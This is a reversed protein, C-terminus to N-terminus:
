LNSRRERTCHARALMERFNFFYCKILRNELGGLVANSELSVQLERMIQIWSQIQKWGEVRLSAVCEAPALPRRGRRM